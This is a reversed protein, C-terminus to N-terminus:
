ILANVLTDPAHELSAQHILDTPQQRAANRGASLCELRYTVPVQNFVAIGTDRCLFRNTYDLTICSAICFTLHCPETSLRINDPKISRSVVLFNLLLDM